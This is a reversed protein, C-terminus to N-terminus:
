RLSDVYSLLFSYIFNHPFVWYINFQKKVLIIVEVTQGADVGDQICITSSETGHIDEMVIQVKVVTHFLDALENRTLDKLRKVPRIPAVLVDKCGNLILYSKKIFTLNM